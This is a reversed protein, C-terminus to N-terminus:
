RYLYITGTALYDEYHIGDTSATYMLQIEYAGTPILAENTGPNWVASVDHSEFVPQLQPNYISMYFNTFSVGPQPLMFYTDNLGDNNPTFSNIYYFHTTTSVRQQRACGFSTIMCVLMGASLVMKKNMNELIM